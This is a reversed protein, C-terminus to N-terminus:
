RHKYELAWSLIKKEKHLVGTIFEEKKEQCVLIKLKFYKALKFEEEM